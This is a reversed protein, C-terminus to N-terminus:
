QREKNVDNPSVVEWEGLMYASDCFSAASSGSRAPVQWIFGLRVYYASGAGRWAIPRFWLNSEISKRLAELFTM